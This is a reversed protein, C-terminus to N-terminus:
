AASRQRYALEGEGSLTIIPETGSAALTASVPRVFETEICDHSKSPDLRVVRSSQNWRGSMSISCRMLQRCTPALMM